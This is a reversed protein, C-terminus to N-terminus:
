SLPARLKRLSTINEFLCTLLLFPELKLDNFQDSNYGKEEDYSSGWQVDDDSNSEDYGDLIRQDVWLISGVSRM